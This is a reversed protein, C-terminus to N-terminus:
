FAYSVGLHAGYAAVSYDGHKIDASGEGESTGSGLTYELGGDFTLGGWTKGTGLTFGHSPGPPLFSARAWAKSTNRTAYLYGFRIPWSLSSYEGALRITHRDSWHQQVTPNTLGGGVNLVGETDVTRVRSYQTWNYEALGRWATSFDHSIGLTAAQPLITHVTADSETIASTSGATHFTGGFKGKAAIDTQSRYSFGLSTSDSLKYQAGVKFGTYSTDKLDKLEVNAYTTAGLRNIFDFNGGSMVVRYSLGVKLKESVKYGMGLALETVTLESGVKFDGNTGAITVGEYKARSGGSVYYGVGFGMTDNPQYSYTLGLPTTLQSKSTEQTDNAAIPGKYQSSVPSINFAVDHGVRDGVLGAPNFYVATSGQIYPTAIGAVGASRGGWMISKEYTANATAGLLACLVLISKM